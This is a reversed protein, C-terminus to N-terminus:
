LVQFGDRQRRKWYHEGYNWVLEEGKTVRRSTYFKVHKARQRKVKEVHMHLNVATSCTVWAPLWDTPPVLFRATRTASQVSDAIQSAPV